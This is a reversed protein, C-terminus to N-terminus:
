KLKCAFVDSEATRLLLVVRTIVLMEAKVEGVLVLAQGM